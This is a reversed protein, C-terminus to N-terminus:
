EAVSRYPTVRIKNESERARSLDFATQMALWSDATSWGMKELRIAMEPSIGAHGNIVRTLTNRTVGLLRASETITLGLPELCADKISRGPHPPKKMPM